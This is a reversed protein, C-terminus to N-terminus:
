QYLGYVKAYNSYEFINELLAEFFHDTNCLIYGGDAGYGDILKKVEDQVQDKSGHEFIAQDFGGILCVKSGYKEKIYAIDDCDGGHKSPTLTEIADIGTSIMQEFVDMQKGCNHYIVKIQKKHLADVMKIDIPMIFEEYIQPSVLSTGCPGGGIEMADIEGNPLSNIFILKREWLFNMLEHVWAPRAYTDFILQEADRIGTIIDQWPNTVYGRAIGDGDRIYKSEAKIAETNARPTPAYYLLDLMKEDRLMMEGPVMWVTRDCDVEAVRELDGKPTRFVQKILTKDNQQKIVEEYEVWQPSIENVTKGYESGGYTLLDLMSNVEYLEQLFVMPDLGFYSFTELQDRGDLYENRFHLTPDLITVPVRDVKELGIAKLLRERSRM